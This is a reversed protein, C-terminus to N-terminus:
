KKSIFITGDAKTIFNLKSPTTILTLIEKLPTSKPVESLMIPYTTIGKQVEINVNYAREIKRLATSLDDHNFRLNGNKWAVFDEVNVKHIAISSEPSKDFVAQDHPHLIYAKNRRTLTIQGELLTTVVKNENDYATCNFTTGKVDITSGAIKVIFPAKGKKVTFLAEGNVLEVERTPGTFRTPYKFVSAANLSVSTGDALRVMYYGGRRTTLEHEMFHATDKNDTTYVLEGDKNLRITLNNQQAVLMDKRAGLLIYQDKGLKLIGKEEGLNTDPFTWTKAFTQRLEIKRKERFLYIGAATVFLFIVAAASFKYINFRAISRVPKRARKQNFRRYHRDIDKRIELQRRLRPMDLPAELAAKISPLNKRYKKAQSRTLTKGDSVKAILYTLHRTANM